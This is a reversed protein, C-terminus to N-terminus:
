LRKPLKKTFSETGVRGGSYRKLINQIDEYTKEPNRIYSIKLEQWATGATSLMVTGTGWIREWVSKRFTVHTVREYRVVTRNINLFGEYFEARDSFFRYERARLNMYSVFISILPIVIFILPIILFWSSFEPFRLFSFLLYVGVVLLFLMTYVFKPLIGAIIRPKLILYPKEDKNM